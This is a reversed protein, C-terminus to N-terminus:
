QIAEAGMDVGTDWEEFSYDGDFDKLREKLPIHKRRYKPLFPLAEDILMQKFMMNIAVSINMGLKDLLSEVERKVSEDVNVNITTTM